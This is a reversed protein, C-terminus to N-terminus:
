SVDMEGGDRNRYIGKKVGKEGRKEGNSSKKSLKPVKV